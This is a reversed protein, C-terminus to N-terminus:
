RLPIKIMRYGDDMDAVVLSNDVNSAVVIFNRSGDQVWALDSIAQKGPTGGQFAVPIDAAVSSKAGNQGTKLVRLTAGGDFPLLAITKTHSKITPKISELATRALM